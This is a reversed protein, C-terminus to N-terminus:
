TLHAYATDFPPDKRVFVADLEALDVELLEGTVVHPPADSVVVPRAVAFVDGKTIAGSAILSTTEPKMEVRCRAVARRHTAEKPTVDVM